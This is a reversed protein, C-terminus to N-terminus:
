NSKFSLPEALIKQGQSRSLLQDDIMNQIVQQQRNRAAQLHRLPDYASPAQVLGALLTLQGDNLDQAQRGFYVQAANQLGYSGEGLYIVNTYLSFIESKSMTQFLGIAAIMERVKFLLNHRQGRLITNDILQQTVTSGGQVYGDHQVDVVVSRAIGEPDIGPDSYFHRDETAIIAQRFAAPIQQYTLPQVQHATMVQSASGRVRAPLRSALAYLGCGLYFLLAVALLGGVVALTRRWTTM